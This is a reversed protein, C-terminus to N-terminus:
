GAQCGGSDLPASFQVTQDLFPPGISSYRRLISPILWSYWSHVSLFTRHPELPTLEDLLIDGADAYDAHRRDRTRPLLCRM